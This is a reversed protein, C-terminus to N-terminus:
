KKTKKSSKEKAESSKKPKKTKAEKVIVAEEIRLHDTTKKPQSEEAKKFTTFGILYSLAYIILAIGMITAIADPVIFRGTICFIGVIIGIVSWIYNGLMLGTRRRLASIGLAQTTCTLIIYIGIIFSIAEKVFDARSVLLAGVAAALIVGFLSVETREGPKAKMFRLLNIGAYIFSIIGLAILIWDTLKDAWIVLCVGVCLLVIASTAKEIRLSSKEM